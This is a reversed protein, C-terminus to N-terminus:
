NKRTDTDYKYERYYNLKKIKDKDVNGDKDVFFTYRVLYNEGNIDYVKTQEEETDLVAIEKKKEPLIHDVLDEAYEKSLSDEGRYDLSYKYLIQGYRGEDKPEVNKDESKVNYKRKVEDSYHLCVKDNKGIYYYTDYASLKIFKDINYYKKDLLFAYELKDPEVRDYLKVIQDNDVIKEDKNNKNREDKSILLVNEPHEITNTSEASSQSNYDKKGKEEKNSSGDEKSDGNAENIKEIKSKNNADKKDNTSSNCAVLTFALSLAIMTKAAKKSFIYIDEIHIKRKM